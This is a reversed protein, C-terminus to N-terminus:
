KARLELLVGELACGIKTFMAPGPTIPHVILELAYVTKAEDSTPGVVRIESVETAPVTPLLM